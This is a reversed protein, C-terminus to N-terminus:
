EHSTRKFIDQKINEYQMSDIHTISDLRITSGLEKALNFLYLAEKKKIYKNDITRVLDKKITFDTMVSDKFNSEIVLKPDINNPLNYKQKIREIEYIINVTELYENSNIPYIDIEELGKKFPYNQQEIPYISFVGLRPKTISDKNVHKKDTTNGISNQGRKTTTDKTINENKFLFNSSYNVKCIKKYIELSFKAKDGYFYERKAKILKKRQITINELNFDDKDKLHIIIYYENDSKTDILDYYNNFFRINYYIYNDYYKLDLNINEKSFEKHELELKDNAQTTFKEKSSLLKNIFYIGASLILLVAVLTTVIVIVISKSKKSNKVENNEPVM